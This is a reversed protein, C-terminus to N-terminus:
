VCKLEGCEERSDGSSPSNALAPIVKNLFAEVCVKLLKMLTVLSMSLSRLKTSGMGAFFDRISPLLELGPLGSTFRMGTYAFGTKTEVRLVTNSIYM